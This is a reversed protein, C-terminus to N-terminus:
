LEIYRNSINILRRTSERVVLKTGIEISQIQENAIIKKLREVIAEALQNYNPEITTLSPLFYKSLPINDFGMISIDDPININKETLAKYVGPVREDGSIFIIDPLNDKEINKLIYNYAEEAGKIGYATEIGSLDIGRKEFALEIGKVRELNILSPRSLMMLVRSVGSDCFIDFSKKLSTIDNNGVYVANKTYSKGYVIFPIGQKKLKSIRIDDEEEYFVVVGDIISGVSNIITRKLDKETYYYETIITINEEICLYGIREILIQLWKTPFGKTTKISMLITTDKKTKLNRAYRNPVYNVEKAVKRVIEATEEKVNGENNIVRSVTKPSFGSRKAIDYITAKKNKMDLVDGVINLANPRYTENNLLVDNSIFHRMEM